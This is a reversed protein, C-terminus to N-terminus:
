SPQPSRKPWCDNVLQETTSRVSVIRLVITGHSPARMADMQLCVSGMSLITRPFRERVAADLQAQEAEDLVLFTAGEGTRREFVDTDGGYRYYGSMREIPAQSCADRRENGELPIISKTAAVFLLEKPADDSGVPFLLARAREWTAIRDVREGEVAVCALRIRDTFYLQKANAGVTANTARWWTEGAVVGLTENEHEGLLLPLGGGGWVLIGRAINQERWPAITILGAALVVVLLALTVRLLRM